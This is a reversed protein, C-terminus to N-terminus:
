KDINFNKTLKVAGILPNELTPCDDCRHNSFSIEYDEFHNKGWFYSSDFAQLKLIKGQEVKLEAKTGLKSVKKKDLGVSDIFKAIPSKDVM